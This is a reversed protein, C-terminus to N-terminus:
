PHAETFAAAGASPEYVIPEAGDVIKFDSPVTFLSADPETRVINTLQFIQDGMRPDSRKSYVITKLEPSTWVETMISLPQDNGIQGAPITVTSRRGTVTVGEMTKSGLDENQVQGPEDAILGRTVTVMPPQTHMGAASGAVGKIRIGGSIPMGAGIKTTFMVNGGKLATKEGVNLTYSTQAVPDQIIVLHPADAPSMNGITPLPADQRTRGMSDRATTGTSNQVIRNGDALTQVSQNTITASYPAGQVPAISVPGFAAGGAMAHVFVHNTEPQALLASAALLALVITRKM